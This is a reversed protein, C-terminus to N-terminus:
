ICHIFPFLYRTFPSLFFLICRFIFLLFFIINEKFSLFFQKLKRRVSYILKNGMWGVFFLQLILTAFGFPYRIFGSIDENFIALFGVWCINSSSLIFHFTNAISFIENFGHVIRNFLSVVVPFCFFSLFNFLKSRTM